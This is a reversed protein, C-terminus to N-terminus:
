PRMLHWEDTATGEAGAGLLDVLMREGIDVVRVPDLVVEEDGHSRLPDVLRRSSWSGATGLLFGLVLLGDGEGHDARWLTAQLQAIGEGWLDSTLQGSEVSDASLPVPGGHGDAAGAVTCFAEIEAQLDAPEVLRFQHAGADTVDELLIQDAGFHHYRLVGVDAISKNIVLAATACSRIQLMTVVSEPLEMGTGDNVAVAGHSCLSRFAVEIAVQRHTDDLRSLYPADVIPHEAGFLLLEEDTFQARSTTSM